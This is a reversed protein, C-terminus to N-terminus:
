TTLQENIYRNNNKIFYLMFSICILRDVKTPLFYFLAIIYFYIMTFVEGVELFPASVPCRRCVYTNFLYIIISCIFLEQKVLSDLSSNSPYFSALLSVKSFNLYFQLLLYVKLRPRVLEYFLMAPLFYWEPSHPQADCFPKCSTIIQTLLALPM